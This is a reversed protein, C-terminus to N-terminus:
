DSENEKKSKSQSERVMKILSNRVDDGVEAKNPQMKENEFVVEKLYRLIVIKQDLTKAEHGLLKTIQDGLAQVEGGENVFKEWKNFLAVIKAKTNRSDDYCEQLLLNVSDQDFKFKHRKKRPM